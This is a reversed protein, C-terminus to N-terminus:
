HPAEEHNAQRADTHASAKAESYGRPTYTWSRGDHWISKTRSSGIMVLTTMDVEETDFAELTTVVIAEDERSINRAIVVPTDAPRAAAMIERAAGLLRRRRRSQPNYLAVVFDGQAAAELRKVITAEPTLLDSLSIACFDHGLPAGVRAAAAQLASIGPVVTIAVRNWSENDAQDILEFVLSALAYIGADGSSVLAVQRGVAALELAQGARKAEEGLKSEYQEKGSIQNAIQDLYLRYGVVVDAARLQQSAEPSRWAEAGPGIGIVALHGNRPQAFRAPDIPIKARAIACTARKSRVKPMILESDAGAAALAAGEAVGHCGVERFVVESPTKLRPAEAELEAADFFRQPVGLRDALEQVAPEDAKLDKLAVKLGERVSGTEDVAALVRGGLALIVDGSEVGAREAPGGPSVRLVKIGVDDTDGLVVGIVPRDSINFVFGSSEGSMRDRAVERNVRAIERTVERLQRRERDLADHMKAMEAKRVAPTATLEAAQKSQQESALRLQQRAKEM